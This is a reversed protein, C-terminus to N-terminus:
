RYLGLSFARESCITSFYFTYCASSNEFYSSSMKGTQLSERLKNNIQEAYNDRKSEEVLVPSVESSIEKEKKSRM